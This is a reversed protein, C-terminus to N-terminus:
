NPPKVAMLFHVLSFISNFLLHLARCLVRDENLYSYIYLSIHEQTHHIHTYSSKDHDPTGLTCTDAHAWRHTYTVYLPMGNPKIMRPHQITPSHPWMIHRHFGLQSLPSTHGTYHPWLDGRWQWRQGGPKGIHLTPHASRLRGYRILKIALKTQDSAIHTTFRVHTM